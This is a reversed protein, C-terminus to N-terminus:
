FWAWDLWIERLIVASPQGYYAEFFLSIQCLYSFSCFKPASLLNHAWPIALLNCQYSLSTWFPSPLYSIFIFTLSLNNLCDQECDFLPYLSFIFLTIITGFLPPGWTDPKRIQVSSASLVSQILPHHGVQLKVFGSLRYIYSIPVLAELDRKFM